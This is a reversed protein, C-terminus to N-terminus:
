RAPTANVEIEKQDGIVAKGTIRSNSLVTEANTMPQTAARRAGGIAGGFTRGDTAIQTNTFPVFNGSFVVNENLNRNTGAVRFFYNRAAPVLVHSDSIRTSSLAGSAVTANTVQQALQLSGTYVSGDADIVRIADGDKEVRFSTLVPTAARGAGGGGGQRAALPDIRSYLQSVSATTATSDTKASDWVTGANGAPAASPQATAAQQRVGNNAAFTQASGAVGRTQLAPAAGTVDKNLEGGAAFSDASSENKYAFFANTSPAVSATKATNSFESRALTNQDRNAEKALETPSVILERNAGAVVPPAAAPPVPAAPKLATQPESQKDALAKKEAVSVPGNVSVPPPALAPQETKAALKRESLKNMSLSDTPQSRNYNALLIGGIVALAVFCVAFALAPRLGFFLSAFWGRSKEESLRAVERQLRQRAAPRLEMSDGAQDRRKKAFARLWKEIRREPEM